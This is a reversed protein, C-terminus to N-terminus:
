FCTYSKEGSLKSYIARKFVEETVKKSNLVDFLKNFIQYMKNKGPAYVPIDRFIEQRIIENLGFIPKIIKAPHILAPVAEIKVLQLETAMMDAATREQIAM